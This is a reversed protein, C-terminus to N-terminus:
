RVLTVNGMQVVEDNSDVPRYKLAYSYVGIPQPSGNYNGDWKANMDSGSSFILHGFRNFIRFDILEEVLVYNIGLLDNSSDSNPSFASPVFVEPRTLVVVTVTDTGECGTDSIANVYFDTTETPAVSVSQANEQSVLEAPSWVYMGNLGAGNASLVVADGLVITDNEGATISSTGELTISIEDTSICDMGATVTLTYTESVLAGDPSELLVDPNADNSLFSGDSTTWEYILTNFSTDPGITGDYIECTTIDEGADAEPLEIVNIFLSDRDECGAVDTIDLYLFTPETLIVSTMESNIDYIFDSGSWVYTDANVSNSADLIVEEGVCIVQDIGADAVLGSNSDLSILSGAEIFIGSDIASDVDDAIVIRLEYVQFPVVPFRATLVTTFGDYQITLPNTNQPPGGNGNDIYYGSNVGDNISELGVPTSTGPVLAINQTGAIGPGTVFIAVADHFGNVGELYEDSGFLYNLQITDACTSSLNLTLGCADSTGQTTPLADLLSDGPNGSIDGTANSTNNPGIAEDANGTTLLIGYASGLNSDEGYYIGFSGSPCDLEASQIMVGSGGIISSMQAENTDTDVSLQAWIQNHVLILFSIWIILKVKKL